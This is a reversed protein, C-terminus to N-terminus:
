AGVKVERIRRSGFSGSALGDNREGRGDAEWYSSCRQHVLLDSQMGTRLEVTM